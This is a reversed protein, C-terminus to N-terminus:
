DPFPTEEVALHGVASEVDRRRTAFFFAFSGAAAVLVGGRRSRAGCGLQPGDARNANRHIEGGELGLTQRGRVM